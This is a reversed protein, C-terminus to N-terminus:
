LAAEEGESILRAFGFGSSKRSGLGNQLLYNIVAKNAHIVFMGLSCEIQCDYHRVVTKRANMPILEVEQAMTKSFGDTLLQEMLIKKARSRFNEDAVSIYVDSNSEANHERLCLPSLMKIVASSASVAKSNHRIVKTITLTNNLPLAFPKYLQALFASMLVSGTRTDSTSITIFLENRGLIISDNFFKPEPLKVAFTFPRRGTMGYYQEFYRGDRASTLAYKCLSIIGSRYDVPLKDNLTKCQLSIEM